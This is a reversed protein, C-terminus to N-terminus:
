FNIFKEGNLFSPVEAGHLDLKELIRDQTSKTSKESNSSFKQLKQRHKIQKPQTLHGRYQKRTWGNTCKDTGQFIFAMLLSTRVCMDRNVHVGKM